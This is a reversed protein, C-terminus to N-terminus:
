NATLKVLKGQIGRLLVAGDMCCSDAIIASNHGTASHSATYLVYTFWNDKTRLREQLEIKRKDNKKHFDEDGSTSDELDDSAAAIAGYTSQAASKATNPTKDHGLLSASEEDKVNWSSIMICLITPLFVLALIRCAHVAMYLYCLGNSSDGQTLGLVFLIAEALLCVLWSSYFPYWVRCSEHLTGILIVWM